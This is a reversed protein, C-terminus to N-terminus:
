VNHKGDGVLHVVGIGVDASAVTAVAVRTV